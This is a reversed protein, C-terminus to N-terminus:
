VTFMVTVITHLCLSRRGQKRWQDWQEPLKSRYAEMQDVSWQIEVEHGESAATLDENSQSKQTFQFRTRWGPNSM